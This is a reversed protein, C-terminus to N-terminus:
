TFRACTRAIEHLAMRAIADNFLNVLTWKINTNNKDNVGRLLNFDGLIVVPLTYCQVKAELDTIFGPSRTHDAPGYVGLLDFKFKTDKHYISASLFFQGKDIAGVEFMAETIGMLMGGSRGEAPRWHWHYLERGVLGRLEQDTFDQKITEQLFIIDIQDKRILEKLQTRRGISSFGRVNWGAIRM